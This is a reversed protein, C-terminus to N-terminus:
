AASQKALRALGPAINYRLGAENSVRVAYTGKQRDFRAGIITFPRGRIEVERGFDAPELGMKPAVQEFREREREAIGSPILHVKVDREYGEAGTVEMLNMGFGREAAAARMADIVGRIDDDLEHEDIEKLPPLHIMESVGKHESQANM